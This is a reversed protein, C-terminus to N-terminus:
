KFVKFYVKPDTLEHISRGQEALEDVMQKSRRSEERVDETSAFALVPKENRKIESDKGKQFGDSNFQRTPSKQQQEKIGVLSLVATPTRAALANFEAKTLGLEAAKAYFVEESKEGFVEKVRQAVTALNQKSVAEQQNKNLTKSVLEAIQEETLNPKSTDRGEGMKQTLELVTQELTAVKEAQKMAEQLKAELDEKTQKLTPIFEQSHQLAKLADQVSKYKPEGRDNKISALLTGLENSGDNGGNGDAPKQQGAPQQGDEFISAQDAM